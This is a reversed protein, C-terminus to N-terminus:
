QLRANLWRYQTVQFYQLFFYLIIVHSPLLFFPTCYVIPVTWIACVTKAHRSHPLTITLGSTNLLGAGNWVMAIVKCPCLTTEVWRYNSQKNLMKHPGVDFFCWLIRKPGRTLLIWRHVSSKQACLAMWASFYWNSSAMMFDIKYLDLWVLFVLDRM